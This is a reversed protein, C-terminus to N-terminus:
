TAGLLDLRLGMAEFRRFDRDLTVLEVQQRIAFAALYADMWVKPSASNLCAFTQWLEDLGSPEDLWQVQPLALLEQCKEWALANSIPGSGYAQHIAPTTLLRLFALQTARCFTAPNTADRREFHETALRSHPHSAFALALWINADYLTAM